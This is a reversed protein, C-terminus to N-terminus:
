HPEECMECIKEGDDAKRAKRRRVTHKSNLILNSTLTLNLNTNPNRNPNSNISLRAESEKTQNKNLNHSNKKWRGRRPRYAPGRTLRSKGSKQVCLRAAASYKNACSMSCFRGSGYLGDHQEQCTECLPGHPKKAEVNKETKVVKSPRGRIARKKSKLPRFHKPTYRTVLKRPRSSKERIIPSKSRKGDDKLKNRRDGASSA